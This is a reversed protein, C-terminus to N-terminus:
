RMARMVVRELWEWPLVAKLALNWRVGKGIPYRLKPPAPTSAIHAILRVVEDPDGAGEVTQEMRRQLAIRQSEYSTHPVARIHSKGWIGTKFAGPEVLSVYVNFPLMELRLSESFGEMAFKSAAYPGMAPFGFRGSISGVNIIRGSRSNRFVPLISRTVAVVGFFNTEFQRRWDEMTLEEVFGAVAFGANNILVDIRGYETLVETVLSSIRAEDTVDLEYCRILRAVGAQEALQMLKAENSLDRMTAIVFFGRKALEISAGLGFGSSAGTIFALPEPIEM